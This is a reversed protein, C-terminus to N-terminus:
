DVGRWGALRDLAEAAYEVEGHRILQGYTKVYEKLLKQLEDGIRLAAQRHDEAQGEYGPLQAFRLHAITEARLGYVHQWIRSILEEEATLDEQTLKPTDGTPELSALSRKIRSRYRLLDRHLLEGLSNLLEPEIEQRFHDPSFGLLDAAQRRRNTLLARRTGPLTGFLIAAAAAYTGDALENILRPLLQNFADLRSLLDDPHVARAAVSRLNVLEGAAALNAPLGKHLIPKLAKTLQDLSIAGPSLTEKNETRAQAAGTKGRPKRVQSHKAERGGM